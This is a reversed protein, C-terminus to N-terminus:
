YRFKEDFAYLPLFSPSIFPLLNVDALIDTLIRFCEEDGPYPFGQLHDPRVSFSDPSCIELCVRFRDQSHTYSVPNSSSDQPRKQLHTKSDSLKSCKLVRWSATLPKRKTLTTLTSVDARNSQELDMSWHEEAGEATTPAKSAIPSVTQVKFHAQLAFHISSIQGFGPEQNLHVGSIFHAGKYM